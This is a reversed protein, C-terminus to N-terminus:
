YISDCNRMLFFCFFRAGGPGAPNSLTVSHYDPHLSFERHSTLTGPVGPQNDRASFISNIFSGQQSPTRGAQATGRCAAAERENDGGYSCVLCVCLSNFSAVVDIKASRKKCNTLKNTNTKSSRCSPWTCPKMTSHSTCLICVGM